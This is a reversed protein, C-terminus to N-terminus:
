LKSKGTQVPAILSMKTFFLYIFITSAKFWWNLSDDCMHSLGQRSTSHRLCIRNRVSSFFGSATAAM